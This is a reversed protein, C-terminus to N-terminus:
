YLNASKDNRKEGSVSEGSVREGSVSEGSVGSVGRFGKLSPCQHAASVSHHSETWALLSPRVVFVQGALVM